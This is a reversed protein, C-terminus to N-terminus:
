CAPLGGPCALSSANASRREVAIGVHKAMRDIVGIQRMDDHLVVIDDRDVARGLDVQLSLRCRLRVAITM